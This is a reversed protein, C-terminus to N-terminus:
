QVIIKNQILGTGNQLVVMYVGKSVQSLNMQYQNEGVVSNGNASTIIRGTIDMLRIVYGEENDSNFVINLQDTAPNPFTNFSTGFSETEGDELRAATTFTQIASWSSVNSLSANCNTRIQWDYSTNKTLQSFSYHSNTSLNYSTWNNLNHKSIRITFGYYCTPLIWNAMASTAAINTTPTAAILPTNCASSVVISSSGTCGNSSSVTVSYTGSNGQTVVISGTTANTNWHYAPFSNSSLTVSGSGSCYTSIGMASIIPTPSSLFSVSYHASGNCTGSTVTVYYTGTTSVSASSTTSGNSWNYTSYQSSIGLSIATGSCASSIGTIVPNLFSTVSVSKTSVGSCGNNDTVSVSYTGTTAVNISRTTADSNWHYSTYSGADLIDTTGQCFTPAGTITPSPLANVTVSSSATGTCGNGDTVSVSYTGSTNATISHSTSNSSWTYSSYTGADLIVSGGACFTTAGSAAISPTPSTNVVFGQTTSSTCGSNQDTVVVSYLGTENAWCYPNSTTYNDPTTWSYSYNNGGPSANFVVYGQSSCITTPGDPTIGAEPGQVITTIGNMSTNCFYSAVTYTGADWTQNGLDISGGNPDPLYPSGYSNGDLYLQYMDFPNTGDLSFDITNGDCFAAGSASFNYTGGEAIIYTSAYGYCGNLDVTLYYTDSGPIEQLEDTGTGGDFNQDGNWQWFYSDYGSGADITSGLCVVPGGIIVPNPDQTVTYSGNMLTNCYYSSVTYTGADWLQNGFDISGGNPDPLYPSGYINGDLYMQYMDYPNTGDLSFDITSSECYPAGSSVFNFTGGEAIIYTSTYGYCGDLGVTLYYTDSGSIAQTESTGTGGSFNQDGNWQWFYSDYGAGADITSGLCVTIGGSIIPNPNSIIALTMIDSSSGADCTVSLTLQVGQNAVDNPGPTYFPTPSSADDFTGDGNTSWSFVPNSTEADGYLQIPLDNACMSQNGGASVNCSQAFTKTPIGLLICVTLFTMGVALCASKVTKYHNSM